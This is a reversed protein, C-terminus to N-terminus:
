KIEKKSLALLPDIYLRVRNIYQCVLQDFINLGDDKHYIKIIIAKKGTASAGFPDDQYVFLKTSIFEGNPGSGTLFTITDGVNFTREMVMISSVSYKDFTREFMKNGGQASIASTYLTLILIISLKKM